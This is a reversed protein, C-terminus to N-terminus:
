VEILGTRYEEAFSGNLIFRVKEPDLNYKNSIREVAVKLGKNFFVGSLDFVLMM